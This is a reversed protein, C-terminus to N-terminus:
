GKEALDIAAQTKKIAIATLSNDSLSKARIEDKYCAKKWARLAKLLADHSVKLDDYSVGPKFISTKYEQTRDIPCERGGVPCQMTKYHHIGEDAGCNRCESM